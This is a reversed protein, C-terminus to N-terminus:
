LAEFIVVMDLTSCRGRFRCKSTCGSRDRAGTVFLRSPGGFCSAERAGAVFLSWWTRFHARSVVLACDGSAGAAPVRIKSAQATSICKSSTSLCSHVTLLLSNAACARAGWRDLCLQKVGATFVGLHTWVTQPFMFLMVKLCGM